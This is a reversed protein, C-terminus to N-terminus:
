LKKSELLTKIEKLLQSDNGMDAFENENTNPDDMLKRYAGLRFDIAEIIFYLAKGSLEVTVM